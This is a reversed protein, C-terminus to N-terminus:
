GQRHPRFSAPRLKMESFPISFKKGKWATWIVGQHNTHTNYLGNLNAEHCNRYWWGGRYSMACRTIFPQPDRDFTSFPRKDHYSLSDGATGSYGSVRMMYHKKMTDVSFTSYHAYVSEDGSRLDVRMNMPTMTTLNHLFDNGLWFEGELDGFGKRYEQWTRFFNTTGDKRRQFITWGGGDTEMDCYVMVPQGQKGGPFIEVVGSDTEGNMLEQSCDSPYPFRLTGTTFETSIAATYVGGREGQLLATYTSSPQLGRLKHESVGPHLTVEKREGGKTFYTLKYSTVASAPPKWSLVATRATVQKATLDRPAEGKGPSGSATTFTTHTSSSKQEGLRSIITVIYKTSAKLAQLQQEVANGSVRISLESGPAEESHYMIIYQDVTALAPRWLMLAKTDTINIARLDTPPDPLTTVFNKIPDSEDLGLVSIVSVEYSSGPSLKTLPIASVSSDVTVSIPEGEKTHIYTVKFGSVSSIPRRWSVTLTTDTIDSFSLHSPPEPGTTIIFTHVKSRLGPGTGYLTVSYSTQASLDRVPYSRASGPLVKIFKKRVGDSSNRRMVETVNTTIENEEKREEGEEQNSGDGENVGEDNEEIIRIVFNKFKGKPAVWIIIFGNSTVNQFEVQNINDESVEAVPFTTNTQRTAKDTSLPVETSWSLKPDGTSKKSGKTGDHITTSNPRLQLFINPPLQIVTSNKKQQTFNPRPNRNSTKHPITNRTTSSEKRWKPDGHLNPKIKSKLTHRFVTGNQKRMTFTATFNPTPGNQSHSNFEPEMQATTSNDGNTIRLPINDIGNESGGAVAPVTFQTSEKSGKEVRSNTDKLRHQINTSNQKIQAHIKPPVRGNKRRIFKPKFNQKPVNEKSSSIESPVKQNIVHKMTTSNDRNTNSPLDQDRNTIRPLDQDRNTIRSLDQDRNTIRSLDQDRNTIRSLDQDRNPIRSLDQDRNTIRPLDQDRNPIRSLDQDRNAISPLINANGVESGGAVAQLKDNREATHEDTSLTVSQKTGKVVKTAADKLGSHISTSNPKIQTNKTLKPRVSVLTGDKKRIVFKSRLNQNPVNKRHDITESEVEQNILMQMTTNSDRNTVRPLDHDRNAIKPIEYDRPTVRPLDQDRNTVRSLNHLNHEKNTHDIANESGRSIARLPENTGVPVEETPMSIKAFRNTDTDTPWGIQSEKSADKSDKHRTEYKTDKLPNHIITPNVNIRTPLKSPFRIVTNNKRKMQFTPIIRQSSAKQRGNTVGSVRQHHATAQSTNSNDRNIVRPIIPDTIKEADGSVPQITGDVDNHAPYIINSKNSTNKDVTVGAKSGNGNKLNTKIQGLPKPPLRIVTGKKRQRTFLQTYNSNLVSQSSSIIGPDVAKNRATNNVRPLIPRRLPFRYPHQPTSTQNQFPGFNPQRPFTGRHSMRYYLPATKNVTEKRKPFNDGKSKDTDTTGESLNTVSSNRNPGQVSEVLLGQDDTQPEQSTNTNRKLTEKEVGLPHSLRLSFENGVPNKYGTMQSSTTSSIFTTPQRSNVLSTSSGSLKPRGSYRYKFSPPLQLSAKTHHKDRSPTQRKNTPQDQTEPPVLSPQSQISSLPHSPSPITEAEVDQLSMRKPDESFTATELVAEEQQHAAETEEQTKKELDKKIPNEEFRGDQLKSGKGDLPRVADSFGVLRDPTTQVTAPLSQTGDKEAVLSIDYLRGPELGDIQASDRGPPLRIEQHGKGSGDTQNPSIYLIYRDIEGQAEEWQIIVSTTSTKVVQLNKPGSILTKFSTMSKAGMKGDKEGIITVTYQQGPALGVQTYTSFGGNVTSTIKQDSEKQSTFTIHYTNYQVIPPTWFLTVSSETINRASLHSVAILATECDPGTFGDKCESCDPEAFSPNCVCKGNVCRGRNSCNNPCAKTSCDQGTFGVECVCQGNICRGKNSCNNPCSRESCDPGTFGTNCVCNGNVCRGKNNCNGPCSRESCDPGTFGTDCVCKGNVCRGKNNCNGPCSRESCDPGTFGTDCVCKGNVCRGKNNCNGPCSRKSCDPGTFGTDCVCKGNVCRGKNNCNRPCSQESCDPGTFGVNCVCNGNVCRGNNNCNGPCSRESCDPGTFGTDCVCKGNVCRGKNHCNRPCSRESCDPGTFETDCVCKGNVCRGKNNCNRPCSRESCDLGIFGANCVCNGNICRGNNNCNGPCSRESCDLGTFGTDCVCKGDVCRGKNNCNGPCSRESCDPGTFGTNCVCKGDVCRGKNNCNRPCSRESCDPGTFGEDCVCKGNVCRGKNNCNRRCSRESCDPGTFGTNCVCKGKVCRGKNCNEPCQTTSCDPGTFGANCVCRGNMCRGHSSCNKPCTKASCDPGTFGPDCVCKGNVCKGKNSCDGPCNSVSCDPGSFGPFCVCKGNECRGQDSCDNLCEDTPPPVTTCGAGKSQQSTCCGSDLGGCKERLESVERELVEIRERLAAFESQCCSGSASSPVLRIRHTLVLPSGPTLDVEHDEVNNPDSVCRESIVMKVPQSESSVSASHSLLAPSPILFLILHLLFPM